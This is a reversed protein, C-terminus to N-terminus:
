VNNVANAIKVAEELASRVVVFRWRYYKGEAPGRICFAVWENNRSIRAAVQGFRNVRILHLDGALSVLGNALPLYLETPRFASLDITIPEQELGSPCYALLTSTRAFEVGSEPAGARFQVDCVHIREDSDLWNIEGDGGVLRTTVPPRGSCRQWTVAVGGLESTGLQSGLGNLGAQPLFKACLELTKDAQAEGYGVENPLPQWGLSDSSEAMLQFKWITDLKRALSAASDRDRCRELGIECKRVEHRSRWALGLVGADNEWSHEQMGMWAYLGKSHESNWSGEIVNPLPERHQNETARVFETITGFQYGQTILADFIGTNLRMWDPDAFFGEWDAPTAWTTFLHGSGMHYWRWETPGSAGTILEPSTVNLSGESIKLRARYFPSCAIGGIGNEDLLKRLENLLHNSGVVVCLNGLRYVPRLSESTSFYRLYDDKCIAVKFWPMVGQLGPGFFAEQAFFIDASELGLRDLCARNLDISRVLDRKPFAVWAAPAYLSSILEIQGRHILHRLLDIAAPYHRALFELGSGAMEFSVRYQKNTAITELFPVVAQTCYRHYCQIHGAVYQVNFHFLGLALKM